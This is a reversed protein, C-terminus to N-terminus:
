PPPLLPDTCRGAELATGGERQGVPARVTLASLEVAANFVLRLRQAASLGGHAGGGAGEEEGGRGPRQPTGGGRGARAAEVVLARVEDALAGAASARPPARAGPPAAGGPAGGDGPAGEM